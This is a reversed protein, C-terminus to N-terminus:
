KSASSLDLFALFNNWMRRYGGTLIVDRAYTFLKRPRLYFRKYARRRIGDLDEPTFNATRVIPKDHYNFRSWDTEALYGNKVATDYLESGPLPVLTSFFVWSPDLALATDVTDRMSEKTDEFHGLIFFGKTRMKHKKILKFTDSLTDLKVKKHISNLVSNNGSEIGIQFEICGAKKMLAILDDDLCDARTLCSWNFNYGGRILRNSFEVVRERKLSFTDDYFFFFSPDFGSVLSDIEAFTNDLSRFRVRGGWIVHQSCFACHFPCGRSTFFTTFNKNRTKYPYHHQYRDMPLLDRAPFPIGDIDEILPPQPNDVLKGGDLHSVGPVDRWDAGAAVRRLLEHFTTEGEGRVALDVDPLMDGPLASPHPGGAALLAGPLASRMGAALRKVTNATLTVTTFGILGPAFARAESIIKDESWGLSFADFIKIDLNDRLHERAYAALYALGLPPVPPSQNYKGPVQIYPPQILLAKLM